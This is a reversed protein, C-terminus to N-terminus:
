IWNRNVMMSTYYEQWYERNYNARGNCGNCLTILNSPECNKKIYDIHHTVLIKSVNWCDPNQCKYGDREKIFDKYEKTFEICYPELSIGGKWNPHLEGTRMISMKLRVEDSFNRGISKDGIKRKSIDSHYRGFFPTKTSDKYREKANESIKNKTEDSFKTGFMPHNEKTSFRVSQSESMKKRTEASVVRGTNAISLKEKHEESFRIGRLPYNPDGKMGRNWCTKGKRNKSILEISEKTHKKGYMPNETPDKLREKAKDSLIKKASIPMKQGLMSKNHGSVFRNNVSQGCGCECLNILKLKNM